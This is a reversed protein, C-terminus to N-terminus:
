AKWAAAGTPATYNGGPADTVATVDSAEAVDVALDLREKNQDIKEKM